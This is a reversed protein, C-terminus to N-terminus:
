GQEGSMPLLVAFTSGRGLTSEVTVAGEHAEVIHKVLTLGLGSGAVSRVREDGARYFRGFIRIRDDESIGIGTDAVRIVAQAGEITLSATVLRPQGTDDGMYKVANSLLNVVVQEIAESDVIAVVPVTPLDRILEINAAKLHYQYRGLLSTLIERLDAHVRQYKRMGSEIRSFDLVNNILGTLRESERTIVEYYADRKDESVWGERLSEAFMRILSLPTKLDHSVSAVFDSRMRSLALERSVSRAALFMAAVVTAFVLILLAAFRVVERSALADVSGSQPSAAVRWKAGQALPTTARVVGPAETGNELLVMAAGTWPGREELLHNLLARTSEITWVHAVRLGSHGIPAIAAQDIHTALATLQHERGQLEAPIGAGAFAGDNKRRYFEYVDAELIYRHRILFRYLDTATEPSPDSSLIQDRAILALRAQEPSLTDASAILKAYTQNARATQGSKLESRSQGNLAATRQSDTTALGSAAAYLRAAVVYSHERHEAKEAVAWAADFSTPSVEMGGTIADEEASKLVLPALWPSAAEVEDIKRFLADASSGAKQLEESVTRNADNMAADLRATVIDAISRHTDAILRKRVQAERYV